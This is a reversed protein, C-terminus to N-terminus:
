NLNVADLIVNQPDSWGNFFFLFSFFNFYNGDSNNNVEPKQKLEPEVGALNRPRITSNLRVGSPELNNNTAEKYSSSHRAV